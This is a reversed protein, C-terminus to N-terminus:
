GGIIVGMESRGALRALTAHPSQFLSAAGHRALCCMSKQRGEQCKPRCITAVVIGRGCVPRYLLASVGDAAHVNHIRDASNSQPRNRMVVLLERAAAGNIGNGNGDRCSPAEALARKAAGNDEEEEEVGCRRV